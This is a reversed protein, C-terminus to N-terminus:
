LCGTYMCAEGVAVFCGCASVCASSEIRDPLQQRWRVAGSLHEIALFLGSHSGIFVTPGGSLGRVVLLPSSDVCKGTNVSWRVSFHLSCQDFSVNSHDDSIFHPLLRCIIISSLIYVSLMKIFLILQMSPCASFTSYMVKISLMIRSLQVYTFTSYM